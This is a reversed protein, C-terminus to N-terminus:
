LLGKRLGEDLDSDALAWQLRLMLRAEEICDHCM